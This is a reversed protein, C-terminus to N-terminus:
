VGFTSSPGGSGIGIGLSILTSLPTNCISYGIGLVSFVGFKRKEQVSGVEPSDPNSGRNHKEDMTNTVTAEGVSEMDLPATYSGM